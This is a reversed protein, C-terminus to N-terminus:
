YEADINSLAEFGNALELFFAWDLTKPQDPNKANHAEVKRRAVSLYSAFVGLGRVRILSKIFNLEEGHPCPLKFARSFDNIDKVPPVDPLVIKLIGRRRMQDFMQRNPGEEFTTLGVKSACLVLGCHTLDFIERIFEVLQRSVDPKVTNLCMHFEDLILLSSDNLSAVVGDIIDSSSLRDLNRLHCTRGLLRALRAKTMGSRCRLYKIAPSNCRRVFEELARTKGLQSAGYIYAPMNDYLAQKCVKFILKATTTEIFGVDASKILNDSQKRYQIIRAVIQTWDDAPYKGSFLQSLTAKSIGTQKSLAPLQLNNDLAHGHLWYIQEGQDITIQGRGVATDIVARITKDSRIASSPSAVEAPQTNEKENM